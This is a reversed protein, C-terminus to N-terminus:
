VVHRLIEEVRQRDECDLEVYPINNDKLYNRVVDDVEIAQELTDYRGRTDFKKGRKLVFNVHEVGQLKASEIFNLAAEGVTIKGSHYLEYVPCLILPSDTVVYDVKGYLMSEYKSQKGLLYMQDYPGVKKDQWAWMKVYERVLECHMGRYKMEAFLHAATTSKGIGSGGLINIVKTM